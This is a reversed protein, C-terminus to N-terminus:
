EILWQSITLIDRPTVGQFQVISIPPFKRERLGPIDVSSSYFFVVSHKYPFLKFNQRRMDEVLVGLNRQEWWNPDFSFSVYLGGWPIKEPDRDEAIYGSRSSVSPFDSPGWVQRVLRWPLQPLRGVRQYEDVAKQIDYHDGSRIARESLEQLTKELPM